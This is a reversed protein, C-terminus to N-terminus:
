KELDDDLKPWEGVETVHSYQIPEQISTGGSMEVDPCPPFSGSEEMEKVVSMVRDPPIDMRTMREAAKYKWGQWMQFHRMKGIVREFASPRFLNDYLDEGVSKLVAASIEDLLPDAM